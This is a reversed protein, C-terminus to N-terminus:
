VGSASALPLGKGVHMDEQLEGLPMAAGHPLEPGEGGSRRCGHSHLDLDASSNRLLSASITADNEGESPFFGTAGDPIV